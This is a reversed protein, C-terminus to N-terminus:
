RLALVFALMVVLGLAIGLAAAGWSPVDIPGLAAEADGHDHGNPDDHSSTAAHDAM